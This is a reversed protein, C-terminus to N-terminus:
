KSSTFPQEVLQALWRSAAQVPRHVSERAARAQARQARCDKILHTVYEPCLTGLTNWFFQRETKKTASWDEPMRDLFGPFKIAQAWIYKVSLEPWPPITLRHVQQNTYALKADLLIDQM